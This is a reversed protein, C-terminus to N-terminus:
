KKIAPSIWTGDPALTVSAVAAGKLTLEYNMAGKEFLKEAVAITSTPYRAKVSASVAAPVSAVTIGEEYSVVTGDALYVLDRAMGNDMSEIEYVMKGDETEKSVNKITANPYAKKFAADVAPPLTVKAPAAQAKPAATPKAASSQADLTPAANLLCLVFAIATVTRILNTM